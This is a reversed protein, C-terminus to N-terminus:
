TKGNTTIVRIIQDWGNRNKVWSDLHKDTQFVLPVRRGIYHTNFHTFTASAFVIVDGNCLRLVLGPEVLCLEGGICDESSIVIILCIKKDQLNRHARTSVNLNIVYRSFAYVPSMHSCPLVELAIKLEAVNEPLLQEM